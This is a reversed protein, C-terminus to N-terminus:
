ALVEGGTVPAIISRKVSLKTLFLCALGLDSTQGLRGAPIQASRRALVDEYSVGQESAMSEFVSRLLPTDTAGPCLVRVWPGEQALRSNLGKAWGVLAFKSACYPGNTAEGLLGAQSSIVTFSADNFHGSRQVLEYFHVFSLTNVKMARDSFEKTVFHISTTAPIGHALVFAGVGEAICLDLLEQLFAENGLDGEIDVPLDPKSVMDQRLVSMGHDTLTQAAASGIGGAAGTVLVRM